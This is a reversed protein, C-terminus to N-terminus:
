FNQQMTRNFQRAYSWSYCETGQLDLIEISGSCHSCSFDCGVIPSLDEVLIITLDDNM